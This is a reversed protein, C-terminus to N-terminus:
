KTTECDPISGKIPDKISRMIIIM